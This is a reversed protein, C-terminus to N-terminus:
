RGPAKEQVAVESEPFRSLLDALEASPPLHGPTPPAGRLENEAARRLVDAVMKVAEPQSLGEVRALIEVAKANADLERREQVRQYEAQSAAQQIVSDHGLVYHGLEHAMLKTLHPSDLMAVNILVNGQRYIAGINLNTSPQVSIRISPLSYLATTKDAFRQMQALKDEQQPTLSVCGACAIALMLVLARM